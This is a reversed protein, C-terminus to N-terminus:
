FVSMSTLSPRKPTRTRWRGGLRYDGIVFFPTNSLIATIRARAIQRIDGQPSRGCIGGAATDGLTWRSRQYGTPNSYTGHVLPSLATRGAGYSRAVRQLLEAPLADAEWALPWPNLDRRCSWGHEGHSEKVIRVAPFSRCCPITLMPASCRIALGNAAEATRLNSEQRNRWFIFM